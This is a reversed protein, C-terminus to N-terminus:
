PCPDTELSWNYPDTCASLYNTLVLLTAITRHLRSSYLSAIQQEIPQKWGALGGMNVWTNTGAPGM